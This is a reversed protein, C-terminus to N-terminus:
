KTLFETEANKKLDSLFYTKIKKRLRILQLNLSVVTWTVCKEDNNLHLCVFVCANQVQVKGHVKIEIKIPILISLIVLLLLHVVKSM